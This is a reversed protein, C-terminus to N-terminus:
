KSVGLDNRFFIIVHSVEAVRKFEMGWYSYGSVTHACYLEDNVQNNDRNGDTAYSATLPGNFHVFTSQQWEDIAPVYRDSVFALFDVQISAYEIAKTDRVIYIKAVIL